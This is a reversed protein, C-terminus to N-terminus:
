NGTNQICAQMLQVFYFIKKYSEVEFKLLPKESFRELDKWNQVIVPKKKQHDEILEKMMKGIIIFNKTSNNLYERASNNADSIVRNIINEAGPDHSMQPLLNKIKMGMPGEQDLEADLAAIKPIVALLDQFAQSMPQALATDWQGRVLIVDAYFQLDNKVFTGLFNNLYNLSDTYEFTDLEKKSLISNTSESYNALTQPVEGGFVQASINNTRNTKQEAELGRLTNYVEEDLKELYTDVITEQHNAILVRYKPNKSIMQVMMELANSTQINKMKALVKKWTGQNITNINREKFMNFLNDWYLDGPISYLITSFDKIDDVVYEATIKDFTPTNGFNNEVIRSNFKKLMFYYDFTAFDYLAMYAKYTSDIIFVRKSDFEAKFAEMDEEIQPKLTDLPIKKAMTKIADENLHGLLEQQHESLSFSIIQNQLLKKNQVNRFMVQTPCIIKYVDYFLKAFVPTVESQAPRYFNHYKTKAFNKAILKLRKKNEADPGGGGFLSDFISQLFSQKAPQSKNQSQPTGIDM